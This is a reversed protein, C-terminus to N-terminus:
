NNENYYALYAVLHKSHEKSVSLTNKCQLLRLDYHQYGKLLIMQICYQQISSSVYIQKFITRMYILKLYFNCKDSFFLPWIRYNKSFKRTYDNYHHTIADM